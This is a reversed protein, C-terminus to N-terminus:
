FSVWKGGAEVTSSYNEGGKPGKLSNVKVEMRQGKQLVKEIVVPKIQFLKFPSHHETSPDIDHMITKSIPNTNRHDNSTSNLYISGELVVKNLSLSFILLLSSRM